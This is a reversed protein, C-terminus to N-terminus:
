YTLFEMIPDEFEINAEKASEGKLSYGFVGNDSEAIDLVGTIAVGRFDMDLPISEEMTILIMQNAPPPPVHICSFPDPVLLFEKVSDIYEDMELPVIFGAVEIKKNQLVKLSDPMNGTFYDLQGLEEWTVTITKKCIIQTSFMM